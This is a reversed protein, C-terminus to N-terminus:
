KVQLVAQHFHHQFNEVTMDERIVDTLAHVDRDTTQMLKSVTDALSSADGPIFQWHPPLLDKMGDCASGLVPIGRALAELMVLPVGEFRSPIILCDIQEYFGDTDRSWTELTIDESRPCSSILKSLRAADPGDGKIIMRCSKFTDPYECFTNVLFDQGKQKYEIRGLLGIVTKKFNLNKIHPPRSVGNPVVSIPRSVGRDILRQKMSNSITLYRDPLNLLSRTALDRLMGLKAGMEQKSHPLAIYSVCRIGAAKSARVACAAHELDGQICLVMDPNHDRFLQLLKPNSRHTFRNFLIQLRDPVKPCNLRLVGSIDALHASLRTNQINTMAAVELAPDKVLAEIGLCAMLQHGGFDLSDDYVLIKM